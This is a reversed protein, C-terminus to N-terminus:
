SRPTTRPAAWDNSPKLTPMAAAQAPSSRRSATRDYVLGTLSVERVKGDQTEVTLADGVRLDPPLADDTSFSGRELVIQDRDPWAFQEAGVDQGSDLAFVPTIRNIRNTEFDEVGTVTLSEWTEPGTAVNVIVTSRGEADAVDPMRRIVEIMEEDMGEAFVTAQGAASADYVAQMESLLVSRLQQVTGVAFIGVAMSSVVLLTRTRNVWIERFVKKWRPGIAPKLMPWDRALHFLTPSRAMRVLARAQQASMRCRRYFRRQSLRRPPQRRDDGVIEGDAITVTRTVRHALDDDHTVMLITKGDSVLSEFLDFVADATRSDLNGTPEDAVILPPDNALARAIAVRQQQGGSIATPLKDIQDAMDVQELLHIARGRREGKDYMNCFDMPLMVNELVTLTPLLQFFQFVVGITRGRWKATKGESLTHVPTNAVFVSGETPRDIGTIMNSLTSKGSGSKGVVAVFEGPDARLDVGKLALFQGAATEYSKVVGSLAILSNQEPRQKKASLTENDTRTFLRNFM